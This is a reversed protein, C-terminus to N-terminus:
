TSFIRISVQFFFTALFHLYTHTRVTYYKGYTTFEIFIVRTQRDIWNQKKIFEIILVSNAETRGFNCIYGGGSYLVSKGFQPITQSQFTNQYIWPQLIRWYKERSHINSQNKWSPDYNTKDETTKDLMPVCRNADFLGKIECSEKRLRQQRLRAIGLM